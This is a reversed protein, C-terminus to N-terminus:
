QSRAVAFESSFQVQRRMDDFHDSLERRLDWITPVSASAEKICGGEGFADHPVEGSGEARKVDASTEGMLALYYQNLAVAPLGARYLANVSSPSPRTDVSQSAIVGLSRAIRAMAESPFAVDGTYTYGKGTMCQVVRQERKFAEWYAITDDRLAAAPSRGFRPYADLPHNGYEDGPVIPQLGVSAIAQDSESSMGGILVLGSGLIALLLAM